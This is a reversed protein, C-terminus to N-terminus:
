PRATEESAPEMTMRLRFDSLQQPFEQFVVTFPAKAGPAIVTAAADLKARLQEAAESTNVAHLEEPTPVGGALVESSKVRQAGDYLAANVKVRVPKSTRNEVQGKVYFVSNGGRTDYLGNSVDHVVFDSPTVLKILQGPSLASADVRGEKMYVGGVATIALLLGAAITLYAVQGTVAQATTLKRREPIGMDAPRGAPRAIAPSALNPSSPQSPAPAEPPAPVDLLERTPPGQGPDEGPAQMGMDRPPFELMSRGTDTPSITQHSTDTQTLFGQSPDAAGLMHRGTATASFAPEANAFPDAMGGPQQPAAFPDAMGGPQQPAAFPDGMDGSQQPAAFPDGMDGPQQPAAFPDGMDGSQAPPAFPDPLGMGGAPEPPAFPDPMGRGGAPSPPAFPDPMASAPAAAPQPEGGMLEDGFMGFDMPGPPAFDDGFAAPAPAPAPAAAMPAPAAAPPPVTLDVGGSGFPDEDAFPMPAGPAAPAPMPLPAFEHSPPAPDFEPAPASLDVGGSGFPDEDGFGMPGASSAPAPVSPPAYAPPAMAPPAMAPPALRSAPAAAPGGRPKGAIPMPTPPGKAALPTPAPTSLPRPPPKPPAAPTPAPADFDPAAGFEPAPGLDPPPESLDMDVSGFAAADGGGFPVAYAPTRSPAPLPVPGPDGPIASMTPPPLDPLPVAPAGPNFFEAFLDGGPAGAAPAPAAPKAAPKAAGAPAAPNSGLAAPRAMSGSPPRKAAGPAAPGKAAVPAAVPAVSPMPRPGSIGQGPVPTAGRPAFGQGPAPTAGRPSPPPALPADFDFGGGVPPLSPVPPRAEVPVPLPMVRTPEHHVEEEMGSDTFNWPAPPLAAAPAPGPLRSAEVAEPVFGPRTTPGKPEAAAGFQEFPDFGAGPAGPAPLSPVASPVGTADAASERTVRFTHGCKTCRVKVGKDTVKEDPIKFRTQCQECKVIM